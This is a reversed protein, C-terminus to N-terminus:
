KWCQDYYKKITSISPCYKFSCSNRLAHEGKNRLENCLKMKKEDGDRKNKMNGYHKKTRKTSPWDGTSQTINLKDWTVGLYKVQMSYYLDIYEEFSEQKM